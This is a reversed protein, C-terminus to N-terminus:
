VLFFDAKEVGYLKYYTSAEPGWGRELLEHVPYQLSFISHGLQIIDGNMTVCTLLM